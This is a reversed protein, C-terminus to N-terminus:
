EATAKDLLRHFLMGIEEDPVDLTAEGVSLEFKQYMPLMTPALRSFLWVGTEKAIALAAAELAEREGEIFVHMMNTQPPNPVIQIQPFATLVTAVEKAKAHYAEMRGLRKRLGSQASLVYPYLHILNGGHRRQWVRSAAIIDAPGALISGAIGGLVKYFSVYVTDFLAAIEAYERNYFPRCEWLRAGDLHVPIGREHAWDIMENLAEWTPLQGGIERQPLEILLAGVPEAVAQLDNLAMLRDPSGVLIGNLGHLRQYAHEEHIELHSKPHFAINHTGWRSALIRLAIQQCMTGSPMFVAAEKGLLEAIDREFDNILEGQGYHDAQLEPDTEAALESLVQKPTKPYDHTLYRTCTRYIAQREDTEPM